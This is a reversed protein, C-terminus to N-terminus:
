QGDKRSTTAEDQDRALAVFTEELSAPVVNLEGPVGAAELAARVRDPTADPVRLGTGVLAAALGAGALAGYAAAWDDTTVAVTRHGGVIAAEAGSAVVSGRALMVLRDCHPTEDLHHTTVLVGAGQGAAAHITRWLEARAAPDVGSTPEDLVLLEPGHALAAAFALRRRLGLPLDRVLSDSAAALDPELSPAPTGFANASFALNEAVTLDEWLGLGQPVYGLRRRTARSPPRGFLEVEGASAPLLGLLLRILTTKGAGNAGLLGVVEGPRVELDVGRVAEFSGFRRWARRAAALPAGPGVRAAGASAASTTRPLVAAVEAPSGAATLRGTDLLAVASARRAEDLYTTSVIVGAGGAAADAISRWLDARSVPDVGTTPEDLILLEPEHLMALAFALKQRMGGSLRGALRDLAGALGTSALLTETRRTLADGRLGYAAAVFQINERVSLDDYIGSAGAVYGIRARPPRRVSGAAVPVVGALARLLTTKGAGDGGIVATVAGAGVELTVEDLAARRGYRVTLGSVGWASV